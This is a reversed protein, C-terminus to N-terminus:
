QYARSSDLQNTTRPVADCDDFLRSSGAAIADVINAISWGEIGTMRREHICLQPLQIAPVRVKLQKFQAAVFLHGTEWSSIRLNLSYPLPPDGISSKMATHIQPGCQTWRSTPVGDLLRWTILSQLHEHIM